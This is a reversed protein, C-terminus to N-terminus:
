GLVKKSGQASSNGLDLKNLSTSNKNKKVKHLKANAWVCVCCCRQENLFHWRIVTLVRECSENRREGNCQAVANGGAGHQAWTLRQLTVNLTWVIGTKVRNAASRKFRLWNNGSLKCSMDNGLAQAFIMLYFFIEICWTTCCLMLPADQCESFLWWITYM